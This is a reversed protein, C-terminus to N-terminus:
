LRSEAEIDVLKNLLGELEVDNSIDFILPAPVVQSFDRGEVLKDLPVEYVAVRTTVCQLMYIKELLQSPRGDDANWKGGGWAKKAYLGGAVLKKVVDDKNCTDDFSTVIMPYKMGTIINDKSFVAATLIDFSMTERDNYSIPVVKFWRTKLQRMLHSMLAATGNKDKCEALLEAFEMRADSTSDTLFSNAMEGVSPNLTPVPAEM